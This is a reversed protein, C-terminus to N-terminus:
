ILSKLMRSERGLINFNEIKLNQFEFVNLNFIKADHSWSTSNSTKRHLFKSNFAKLVGLGHGPIAFDEIHFNLSGFVDLDFSQADLFM